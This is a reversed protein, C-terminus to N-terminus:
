VLFVAPFAFFLHELTTTVVKTVDVYFCKANFRDLYLPEPIRAGPLPPPTCLTVGLM